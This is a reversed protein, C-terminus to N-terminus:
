EIVGERGKQQRWGERVSDREGEKGGEGGKEM